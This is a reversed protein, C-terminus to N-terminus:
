LIMVMVMVMTTTTMTTTTMTTMMSNASHKCVARHMHRM